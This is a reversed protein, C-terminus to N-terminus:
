LIGWLAQAFILGFIGLALVLLFIEGTIEFFANIQNDYIGDRLRLSEFEKENIEKGSLLRYYTKMPKHICFGWVCLSSFTILVVGEWFPSMFNLSYKNVFYFLFGISFLFSFVGLYRTFRKHTSIGWIQILPILGFCISLAIEESFMFDTATRSISNFLYLFILGSIHMVYMMLVLTLFLPTPFDSTSEDKMRLIPVPYRTYWKM